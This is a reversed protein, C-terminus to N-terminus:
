GRVMFGPLDAHNVVIHSWRRAAKLMPKGSFMKSLDSGSDDDPAFICMYKGTAYENYKM